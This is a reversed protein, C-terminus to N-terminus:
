VTQVNDAPINNVKMWNDWQKLYTILKQRYISNFKPTWSHYGSARTFIDLHRKSPEKLAISLLYAAAQANYCGRNSIDYESAGFKEFRGLHISNIQFQGIDYSTNKNSVKQNYRGREISNIALMFRLPVQHDFAAQRVCTFNAAGVAYNAPVRLAQSGRAVGSLASASGYSNNNSYQSVTVQRTMAAYPNYSVQTAQPQQSYAQRQATALSRQQNSDNAQQAWQALDLSNKPVTSANAHSVCAVLLIPAISHNKVLSYSFM